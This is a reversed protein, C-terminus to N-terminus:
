STGLVLGHAYRGRRVAQQLNRVLSDYDWSFHWPERIGGLRLLVGRHGVHLEGNKGNLVIRHISTAPTTFPYPLEILRCDDNDAHIAYALEDAVQSLAWADRGPQRLRCVLDPDGIEDATLVLPGDDRATQGRSAWVAHELRQLIAAVSTEDSWQYNSVGVHDGLSHIILHEPRATIAALWETAGSPQVNGVRLTYYDNAADLTVVGFDLYLGYPLREMILKILGHMFDGLPGGALQLQRASHAHMTYLEIM